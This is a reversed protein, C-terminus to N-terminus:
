SKINGFYMTEGDKCIVGVTWQPACRFSPYILKNCDFLSSEWGNCQVKNFLTPGNSEGYHANFKVAPGLIKQTCIIWHCLYKSPGSYGLAKCAVYTDSKDFSDGCVGGWVGNVCVELIGEQEIVGGVLRTQGTTCTGLDAVIFQLM